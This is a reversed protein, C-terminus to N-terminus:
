RVGATRRRARTVASKQGGSKVGIKTGGIQINEGRRATPSQPRLSRRRHMTKKGIFTKRPVDNNRMRLWLQADRKKVLYSSQLGALEDVISCLESVVFTKAWEISNEGTHV